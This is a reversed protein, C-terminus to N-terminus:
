HRAYIRMFAIDAARISFEDHPLPVARLIKTPVM